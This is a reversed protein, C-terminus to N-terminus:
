QIAIAHRRLIQATKTSRQHDIGGTRELRRCGRKGLRGDRGTAVVHVEGVGTVENGVNPTQVLTRHVRTHLREGLPPLADVDHADSNRGTVVRRAPRCQHM